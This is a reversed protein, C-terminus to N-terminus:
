FPNAMWVLYFSEDTLDIGYHSFNFLWGLTFVVGLAALALLVRAAVHDAQLSDTLPLLHSSV